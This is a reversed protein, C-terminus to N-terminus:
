VTGELLERDLLSGSAAAAAAAAEAVAGRGGGGFAAEAGAGGFTASPTGDGHLFATVAALLVPAVASFELRSVFNALFSNDPAPEGSPRRASDERPSGPRSVGPPAPQPLCLLNRDWCRLCPVGGLCRVQPHLSRHM